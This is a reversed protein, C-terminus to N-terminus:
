IPRHVELTSHAAERDTHRFGNVAREATTAAHPTVPIVGAQQTRRPFHPVREDVHQVVEPFM